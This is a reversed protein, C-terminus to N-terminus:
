SHNVKFIISQGGLGGETHNVIDLSPAIGAGTSKTSFNPILPDSRVGGRHALYLEVDQFNILYLDFLLNLFM